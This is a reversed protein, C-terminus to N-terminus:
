RIEEVRLVIRDPRGPDEVIARVRLARGVWGVRDGISVQVGPRLTVRFRAAADAAEGAVADGTGDPEIAAWRMAVVTWAGDGGGLADRAGDRREITVRRRLLGALESAGASM